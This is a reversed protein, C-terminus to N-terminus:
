LGERFKCEHLSKNWGKDKSWKYSSLITPFRLIFLDGHDFLIM